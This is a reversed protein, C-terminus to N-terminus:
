KEKTYFFEVRFYSGKDIGDVCAYMKEPSQQFYIIRQPFDHQPNEFVISDNKLGTFKFDVPGNKPLTPIYYFDDGRQEIKLREAFTTDKGSIAFGTGALVNNKVPQWEEVLVTQNATGKWKGTMWSFQEVSKKKDACASLLFLLSLGFIYNRVARNKKM